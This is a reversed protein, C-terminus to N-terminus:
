LEKTLIYEILGQGDGVSSIVEYGDAVLDILRGMSVEHDVGAWKSGSLVIQVRVKKEDGGARLTAKANM